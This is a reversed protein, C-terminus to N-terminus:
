FCLGTDPNEFIRSSTSATARESESQEALWGLVPEMFGRHLAEPIVVRGSEIRLSM